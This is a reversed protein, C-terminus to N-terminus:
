PNTNWMAATCGGSGTGVKDSGKNNEPKSPTAVPLPPPPPWVVHGADVVLAGRVVPDKSPDILLEGKMGTTMPGMSTVFQLQPLAPVDACMLHALCCRPCILPLPKSKTTMPTTPLMVLEHYREGSMRHELDVSATFQCHTSLPQLTM